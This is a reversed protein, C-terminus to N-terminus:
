SPLKRRQPLAYENKGFWLKNFNENDKIWDLFDDLSMMRQLNTNYKWIKIASSEDENKSYSQLFGKYQEDFNKSLLKIDKQRENSTTPNIFLGRGSSSIVSDEKVDSTINDLASKINGSLDNLQQISSKQFQGFKEGVSSLNLSSRKEFLKDIANILAGSFSQNRYGYKNNWKREDSTALMDPIKSATQAVKDLVSVALQANQLSMQTAFQRASFSRNAIDSRASAMNQYASDANIQPAQASILQGAQAGDTAMLPSLGANKLDAVRRQMANDERDMQLQNLQKQYDYQEQQFGFNKYALQMQEDFQKQAAQLQMQNIREASEIQKQANRDASKQGTIGKWVNPIIGREYYDDWSDYM